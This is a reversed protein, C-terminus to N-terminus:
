SQSLFEPFTEYAMAGCAMLTVIEIKLVLNREFILVGVGEVM